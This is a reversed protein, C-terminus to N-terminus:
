VTAEVETIHSMPSHSILTTLFVNLQCKALRADLILRIDDGKAVGFLSNVCRPTSTLQLMGFHLMPRVLKICESRAVLARPRRLRAAVVREAAVEPPLLVTSPNSYCSAVTGPLLSLIAVHQLNDPLSVRDAM